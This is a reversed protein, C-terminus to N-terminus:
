TTSTRAGGTTAWSPAPRTTSSPNLTTTLRDALLKAMIAGYDDGDAWSQIGAKDKTDEIKRERLIRLRERYSMDADPPLKNIRDRM